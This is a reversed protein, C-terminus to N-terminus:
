RAWTLGYVSCNFGSRLTRACEDLTSGTTYVDDILIIAPPSQSLVDTSFLAERRWAFAGYLDGLREARSRYSQKGTHRTRELISLVPLGSTQSLARTVLETQNFGRECLRISSLPVYSLYVSQQRKNLQQESLLRDLTGRMMGAMLTHLREDGRYKYQSLWSKMTETYRVASRNVIFSADSRRSCDPCFESRGCTACQIDQPAIWPIDESCSRCIPLSSSAAVSQAGCVLCHEGEPALLRRANRVFM